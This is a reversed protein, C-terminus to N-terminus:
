AANSTMPGPSASPPSNRRAPADPDATAASTQNSRPAHKGGTAAGFNELDKPTQVRDPSSTHLTALLKENYDRILFGRSRRCLFLRRGGWHVFDGAGVVIRGDFTSRIKMLPAFVYRLM